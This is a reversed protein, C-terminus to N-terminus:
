FRGDPGFAVGRVGYSAGPPRWGDGVRWREKGTTADWVIMEDGMTVITKEDPSLVLDAVSSPNQLRTTGLRLVAGDPLSDGLSDATASIPSANPSTQGAVTKSVVSRGAGARAPVDDAMAVQQSQPAALILFVLLGDL